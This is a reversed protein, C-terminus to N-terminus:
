YTAFMQDQLKKLRAAENVLDNEWAELKSTVDAIEEIQTNNRLKNGFAVQDKHQKIKDQYREEEIKMNSEHVERQFDFDKAATDQTANFQTEQMLRDLRSNEMQADHHSETQAMQANFQNNQMVLGAGGLAIQAGGFVGAGIGLNNMTDVMSHTRGSNQVTNYPASPAGGIDTQSTGHTPQSGSAARNGFMKNKVSQWRTSSTGPSAGQLQTGSPPGNSFMKNKVSQSTKSSSLGGFKFKNLLGTSGIGFPKSTLTPLSRTPAKMGSLTSIPRSSIAPIKPIKPLRFTPLRPRM